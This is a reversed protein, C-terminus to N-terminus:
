GRALYARVLEADEADPRLELYRRFARLADETEGVQRLVLGMSRYLQPPVSEMTEAARYEKLARASDGYDGRLRYAEGKYFGIDGAKPQGIHLRELLVLSEEFHRRRVEDALFGVRHAALRQRYESAGIRGGAVALRAASEALTKQREEPAPHTAFLMGGSWSTTGSGKGAEQEELLQRWVASAEAPAYGARAMLQIGIDDAEREHDRSYAFAGAAVAVQAALDVGPSAGAMGMAFGLVQGFASRSKMDRMREVSHRALYHGIEHGLIAALQAESTVRLLLGSWVQMMGNPAMSANFYPTRVLYLRLDPCHSGALSCAIDRIYKNLEADRILFRSRKLRQEERDMYGWLGGEDTAAEPRAFRAPPAYPQQGLAHRASAGLLMCGCGLM